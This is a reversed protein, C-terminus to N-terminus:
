VFIFGTWIHERCLNRHSRWREIILRLLHGNIRKGECPGFQMSLEVMRACAIGGIISRQYHYFTTLFSLVKMAKTKNPDLMRAPMSRHNESALFENQVREVECCVHSISDKSIDLPHGLRNLLTHCEDIAKQLSSTSLFEIWICRTKFEEELTKAHAFVYSIREQLTEQNSQRCSYLACVSTAHLQLSLDHQSEWHNEDLFSLGNESYKVASSSM